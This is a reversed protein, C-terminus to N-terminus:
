GEESETAQHQTLSVAFQSVRSRRRRAVEPVDQALRDDGVYDRCHVSLRKCRKRGALAWGRVPGLTEGSTALFFALNRWSTRRPVGRVRASFVAQERTITYSDDTAVTTSDAVDASRDEDESTKLGSGALAFFICVLGAAVVAGAGVGVAAPSM